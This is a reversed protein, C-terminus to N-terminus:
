LLSQVGRNAPGEGALIAALRAANSGSTRIERMRSGVPKVMLRVFCPVSRLRSRRTEEEAERCLKESSDSDYNTNAPEDGIMAVDGKRFCEDATSISASEQDAETQPSYTRPM